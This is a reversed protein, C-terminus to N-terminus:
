ETKAKIETTFSEFGFKTAAANFKMKGRTVRFQIRVHQGFFVSPDTGTSEKSFDSRTSSGAPTPPIQLHFDEAGDPRIVVYDLVADPEIEPM